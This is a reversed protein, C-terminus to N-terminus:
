EVTITVTDTHSEGGMLCRVLAKKKIDDVRGDFSPLGCLPEICVFPADTFAPQWFGIVPSDPYDVRVFHDSSDSRLTVSRAADTLFIADNDFMSHSLPLVTGNKLFPLFDRDGQCFKSESFLVQRPKAIESFELYWDTFDGELPVNFGPHMGNCYYLEHEGINKVNIKCILSNQCLEYKIEFDFDFPYLKKTNEDSQKKFIIFDKGYEIDCFDVFRIFGHIVGDYREGEYTYHGDFLRCCYPFLLPSREDWYKADGQWLFETGEHSRLSLLEAGLSSFEASLFENKISYKM